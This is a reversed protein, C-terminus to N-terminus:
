WFDSVGYADIEKHGMGIVRPNVFTGDILHFMVFPREYLGHAGDRPNVLVLISTFPFDHRM